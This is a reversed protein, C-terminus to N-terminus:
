SPRTPRANSEQVISQSYPVQAVPPLPRDRSAQREGGASSFKWEKSLQLPFGKLNEKEQYNLWNEQKQM